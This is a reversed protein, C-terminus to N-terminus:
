EVQIKKCWYTKRNEIINDGIIDNEYKDKLKRYILCEFDSENLPIEKLYEHIKSSKLLENRNKVFHKYKNIYGDSNKYCSNRMIKKISSTLNKINLENLESLKKYPSIKADYLIEAVLYNGIGSGISKNKEQSMMIEVIKKDGMKKNNILMKIRRDITYDDYESCILDDEISDIKKYLINIDNTYKVNGYNSQDNYYLNYIRNNRKFCIKLRSSREKFFTFDGTLGFNVILYCMKDKNKLTFYMVKGKTKIDYFKYDIVNKIDNTKTDSFKGGIFEIDTIKCNKLKFYLYDRIFLVEPGEPM